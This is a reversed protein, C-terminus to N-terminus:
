CLQEAPVLLRFEVQDNGEFHTGPRWLQVRGNEDSVRFITTDSFSGPYALLGASGNFAPLHSLFIASQAPLNGSPPLQIVSAYPSLEQLGLEFKNVQLNAIRRILCLHLRDEEHTRLVVLDGAQVPWKPGDLYRIGFGDPSENLVDWESADPMAEHLDPASHGANNAAVLHLANAMGAVLNAKPRFKMRSFRRTLQGNIAARLTAMISEHIHGSTNFGQTLKRDLASLVGRCEIIFNGRVPSHIGARALSKGPSGKDTNVLFRGALTSQNQDFDLVDVIGAFAVLSEVAQLLEDLHPRPIKSPDAYAMLLACLYLREISEDGGQAAVGHVRAIRYLDHMHQWSSSSPTAYARYALMQRRLLSQMARLISQQLLQALGSDLQKGAIAIVVRSYSYALYKLFNDAVLAMSSIKAPLPLVADGVTKELTPLSREITFQTNELHQFLTQPHNLGALAPLYQERLQQLTDLAPLGSLAELISHPDQLEFRNNVAPHTDLLERLRRLPAEM